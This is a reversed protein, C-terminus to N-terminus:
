KKILSDVINCVEKIYGKTMEIFNINKNKSLSYILLPNHVVAIIQTHAKHYSLIGKIEDIHKLDLNRDPEDM